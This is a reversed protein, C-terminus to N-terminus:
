VEMKDEVKMVQAVSPLPSKLFSKLALIYIFFFFFVNKSTLQAFHPVFHVSSFCFFVIHLRHCRKIDTVEHLLHNICFISPNPVSILFYLIYHTLISLMRQTHTKENSEIFPNQRSDLTDSYLTHYPGVDTEHRM